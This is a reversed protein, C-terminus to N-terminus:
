RRLVLLAIAAAAAPLAWSPVNSVVQSSPVLTPASAGTAVDTAQSVAGNLASVTGTLYTNLATALQKDNASANPDVMIAQADAALKNHTAITSQIAASGSALAPQVQAAAKKTKNLLSSAAVSAGAVGATTLAAAVALSGGATFPALLVGLAPIAVGVVAKVNRKVAGGVDKAAKSVAAGIDGFFSRGLGDSGGELLHEVPVFFTTTPVGQANVAGLGWSIDAEAGGYRTQRARVGRLSYTGATHRNILMGSTLGRRTNRFISDPIKVLDRVGSLTNQQMTHRNVLIGPTLGRNPLPMYTAKGTTCDLGICRVNSPLVAGSKTRPATSFLRPTPLGAARRAILQKGVPTAELGRYHAM